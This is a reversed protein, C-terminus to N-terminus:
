KIIINNIDNDTPINMQFCETNGAFNIQPNYKYKTYNNQLTRELTSIYKASGEITKILKWQYPIHKCRKSINVFTKGIKIFNEKDNWLEVIYIKYGQFNNSDQGRKEWETDSYGGINKCKKCGLKGIIHNGPKVSFDGHMLCTITLNIKATKYITKSYDYKNGHIKKAELIFQETTKRKRTDKLTLQGCKNCGQGQMHASPTQEFDGHLICNIIIKKRSHKYITNKYNYKEGHIKQSKIIFEKTTLNKVM